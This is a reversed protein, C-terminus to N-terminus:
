MTKLHAWTEVVRDFSEKLQRIKSRKPESVISKVLEEHLLMAEMHRQMKDAQHIDRRYEADKKRDMALNALSDAHVNQERPIWKITVQVGSKRIQQMRTISSQALDKLDCCKVKWRGTVQEVILKSDSYIEINNYDSELAYNLGQILALYEAFNNSCNELFVGKEFICEKTGDVSIHYGAIGLGSPGPNSRSGGDVYIALVSM